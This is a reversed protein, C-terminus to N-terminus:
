AQTCDLAAEDEEWSMARSPSPVGTRGNGPATTGEGGDAEDSKNGTRIPEMEASGRGPEM